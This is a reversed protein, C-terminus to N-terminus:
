SGSWAPRPLACRQDEVLDVRADAAVRGVDDSAPQLAEGGIRLDEADRVQRLDGRGGVVVVPDRLGNAALAGDGLDFAQVGLTAPLLERPHNCPLGHGIAHEGARVLHQVLAPPRFAFRLRFAFAFTALRLSAVHAALVEDLGVAALHVVVVRLLHGPQQFGGPVVARGVVAIGVITTM